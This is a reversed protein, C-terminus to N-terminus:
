QNNKGERERIELEQRCLRAMRKSAQAEIPITSFAAAAEYVKLVARLRETALQAMWEKDSLHVVSGRAYMARLSM